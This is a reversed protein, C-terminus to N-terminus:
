AKGKAKGKDPRAPAPVDGGLKRDLRTVVLQHAIGLLSNTMTYICLGAPLFFSFATFMIPMMVSMMKQQQPDGGTPSMRMQLFMIAGMLLPLPVRFPDPASLDHIYWFFPERHLEVAYNLTSFLAIWIPMTLLSPLCGGLFPSVGEQKYLKMTEIQLRQKDSEFKKRLEAMKPSLRQMKRGSMMAKHAPWLTVLKVFLTLLIIALGWNGVVGHFVKLLALLPKSLLEINVDVAKRLNAPGGTNNVRDLEAGYKPGGFLDIGYVTTQHAAVTQSPLSVVVEATSADVARRVCKRTANPDEPLVAAVV